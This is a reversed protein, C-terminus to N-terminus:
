ESYRAISGLILGLTGYLFANVPGYFLLVATWDPYINISTINIIPQLVQMAPYPVPIGPAGPVFGCVVPILYGIAAFTRTWRFAHSGAM